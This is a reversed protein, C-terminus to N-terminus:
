NSVFISHYNANGDPPTLNTFEPIAGVTSTMSPIGAVVTEYLALGTFGWARAAVPPTFGTGEKTLKLTFSFYHNPVAADYTGANQAHAAFFSTTLFALLLKKM